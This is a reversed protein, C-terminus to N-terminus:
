NNFVSDNKIPDAFYKSFPNTHQSNKYAEHVLAKEAEIKDKFERISSSLITTPKSNKIASAISQMPKVVLEEGLAEATAQGLIRMGVLPNKKTLELWKGWGTKTESM